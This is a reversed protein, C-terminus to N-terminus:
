EAKKDVELLFTNDVCLRLLLLMWLLSGFNDRARGCRRRAREGHPWRVGLRRNDIVRVRVDATVGFGFHGFGLAHVRFSFVLRSPAFVARSTPLPSLNSFYFCQYCVHLLLLLLLLM